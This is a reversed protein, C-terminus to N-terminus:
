EHLVSFGEGWGEGCRIPLPHGFAPHPLATVKQATM